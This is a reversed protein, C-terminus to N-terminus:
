RDAEQKAEIKGKHFEACFLIPVFGSSAMGGEQLFPFVEGSM